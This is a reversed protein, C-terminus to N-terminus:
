LYRHTVEVKKVFSEAATDAIAHLIFEMEGPQIVKSYRGSSPLYLM